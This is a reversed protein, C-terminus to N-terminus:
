VQYLRRRSVSPCPVVGVFNFRREQMAPEVHRNNNSNSSSTISNNRNSSNTRSRSASLALDASLELREIYFGM